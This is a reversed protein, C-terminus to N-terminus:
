SEKTIKELDEFMKTAMSLPDQGNLGEEGGPFGGMGGLLKGMMEEMM